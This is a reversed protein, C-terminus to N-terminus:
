YLRDLRYRAQAILDEQNLRLLVPLPDDCVVNGGAFRHVADLLRKMCQRQLDASVGSCRIRHQM